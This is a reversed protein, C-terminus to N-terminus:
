VEEDVIVDVFGVEKVEEVIFWIEVDMWEIIQEMSVGIKKVYIKNIDVDVKGLLIVIVIMEYCNGMVIIWVNYIMFMGGEVIEVWDVVMVVGIVVFVVLGDIYVYVQVFYCKFVDGIVVGDFVDGGSSNIWVYISIVYFYEDLVEVVEQVNVGGFFGGIVDYIYFVLEDGEVKISWICLKEVNDKILKFLNM